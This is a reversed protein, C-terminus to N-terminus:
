EYSVVRQGFKELRAVHRRVKGAKLPNTPSRYAEVLDPARTVFMVGCQDPRMSFPMRDNVRQSRRWDCEFTRSCVHCKGCIDDVSLWAMAYDQALKVTRPIDDWEVPEAIRVKPVKIAREGVGVHNRIDFAPTVVFRWSGGHDLVTYIRSIPVIGRENAQKRFYVTAQRIDRIVADPTVM